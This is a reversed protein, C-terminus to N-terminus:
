AGMTSGLRPSDLQSGLLRACFSDPQSSAAKENRVQGAEPLSLTLCFPNGAADEGARGAGRLPLVITVWPLAAARARRLAAFAPAAARPQAWGIGLRGKKRTQRAPRGPAAFWSFPSPNM